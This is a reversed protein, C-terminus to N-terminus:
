VYGHQKNWSERIREAQKKVIGAYGMLMSEYEKQTCPRFSSLYHELNSESGFHSSSQLHEYYGKGTSNCRVTIGTEPGTRKFHTNDRNRKYYIPYEKM